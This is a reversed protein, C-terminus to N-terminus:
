FAGVRSGELARMETVRVSLIPRGSSPSGGKTTNTLFGTSPPRFSRVSRFVGRKLRCKTLTAVFGEVANIWSCSTPTFGLPHGLRDGALNTHFSLRDLVVM